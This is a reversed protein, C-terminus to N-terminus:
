ISSGLAYMDMTGRRKTKVHILGKMLGPPQPRQLGSMCRQQCACLLADGARREHRSPRRHAPAEGEAARVELDVLDEQVVGRQM